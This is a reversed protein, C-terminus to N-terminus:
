WPREQKLDLPSCPHQGRSRGRRRAGGVQRGRVPRGPPHFQGLFRRLALPAPPTPWTHHRAQDQRPLGLPALQQPQQDRYYGRQAGAGGACGFTLEELLHQGCHVLSSVGRLQAKHLGVAHGEGMYASEGM